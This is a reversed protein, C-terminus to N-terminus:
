AKTVIRLELRVDVRNEGRRASSDYLQTQSYFRTAIPRFRCARCSARLFKPYSYDAWPLATM